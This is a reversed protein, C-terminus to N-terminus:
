EIVKAIELEKLVRSISPVNFIKGVQNESLGMEVAAQMSLRTHESIKMQKYMM